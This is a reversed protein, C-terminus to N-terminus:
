YWSCDEVVSCLGSVITAQNLRASVLAALAANATTWTEELSELSPMLRAVWCGGTVSSISGSGQRYVTM